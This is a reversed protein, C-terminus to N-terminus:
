FRGMTRMVECPDGKVPPLSVRKQQARKELELSHGQMYTRCEDFNRMTQLRAAHAKREEPSMLEAGRFGEGSAYWPFALVPGSLVLGLLFVIRREIAM